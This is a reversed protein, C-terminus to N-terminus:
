SQLRVKLLNRARSLQSKSTGESINLMRAIEQHRYGEVDHLVLIERAGSPLSQVASELDLRREHSLGDGSNYVRDPDEGDEFIGSRTQRSRIHDIVVNVTIRRLWGAFPADGRYTDLKTWARIVAEQSLERALDPDSLMRLCVAYIGGAHERCLGAFAVHDGSLAQEVLGTETGPPPTEQTMNLDMTRRKTM